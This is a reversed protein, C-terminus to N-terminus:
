RVGGGPKQPQAPIEYLTWGECSDDPKVLRHGARLVPHAEGAEVIVHRYGLLALKQVNIERSGLGFGAGRLLTQARQNEILAWSAIGTHAAAQGHRIQLLQSPGMEGDIADAPWTLVPGSLKQECDFEPMPTLPPKLSMGGMFLADCAVFFLAVVVTTMTKERHLRALGIAALISVSVLTLILYRTPQTLPRAVANMIENVFLFPFAVGFALSGMSLVLGSLALLFWARGQRWSSRLGVLALLVVSLGLYRGGRASTGTDSDITWQVSGPWFSEFFGMRAWPLDIVQMLHGFLAVKQGDIERPYDPNAGKSFLVAVLAIGVVGAIFALFLRKRGEKTAKFFWIVIALGPLVPALYPNELACWIMCFASFVIHKRKGTAEAAAITAALGLPFAANAIAVVSAEGVGFVLHRGVLPVIAAFYPFPFPIRAQRALIFCGLCIGLVQLTAVLASARGVGVFPELMAWTIASSPSLVSGMAGHPYNVLLTEGGSLGSLGTAQFWWMGWLSSIVDPGAGVIHDDILGKRFPFAAVLIFALCIVAQKFRNTGPARSMAEIPM